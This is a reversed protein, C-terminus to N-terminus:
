LYNVVFSLAALSTFSLLILAQATSFLFAPFEPQVFRAISSLTPPIQISVQDSFFPLLHLHLSNHSSLTLTSVGRPIQLDPQVPAATRLTHNGSWCCRRLIHFSHLNEPRVRSKSFWLIVSYLGSIQTKGLGRPSESKQPMCFDSHTRCLSPLFLPLWILYM